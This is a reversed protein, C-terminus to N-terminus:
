FFNWAFRGGGLQQFIRLLLDGRRRRQLLFILRGDRRALVRQLFAIKRERFGLRLLRQGDAGIVRRRL